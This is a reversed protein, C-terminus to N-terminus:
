QVNPYVKFAIGVWRATDDDLSQRYGADLGVGGRTVIGVGASWWQTDLTEDLVWGGRVPFMGALLLEAGASWRNTTRGEVRDVDGRWDLLVQARRDSGLVVGAGYGTPAVEPRGTPALSYAAAGLSLLPLVEWHLGVDVTVISTREGGPARLPLYKGGVGFNLKPAIAGALALHFANGSWGGESVRLYSFGAAVPGTSDVVSGGLAQLVTDAGRREVIWLGEASYRRRAALAGPNLYIADNGSAAGIAASLALTRPGAVDPFGAAPLEAPHATSAAGLVAAVAACRLLARLRDFTPPAGLARSVVGERRRPPRDADCRPTAGGECVRRTHETTAGQAARTEVAKSPGPTTV